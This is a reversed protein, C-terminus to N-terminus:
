ASHSQVLHLSLPIQIRSCNYWLICSTLDSTKPVLAGTSITNSFLSDRSCYSDSPCYCWKSLLWLVILPCSMTLWLVTHLRLSDIFLLYWYQTVVTYQYHTLTLWLYVSVIAFIFPTLGIVATIVCSTLYFLLFLFLDHTMVSKWLFNTFNLPEVTIKHIRELPHTLVLPQHHTNYQLHCHEKFLILERPKRTPLHNAIYISKPLHCYVQIDQTELYQNEKSSTDRISQKQFWNLVCKCSITLVAGKGQTIM